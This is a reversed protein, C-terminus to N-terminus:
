RASWEPFTVEAKERYKGSGWFYKEWLGLGMERKEKLQLYHLLEKALFIEIYVLKENAQCTREENQYQFDPPVTLSGGQVYQYDVLNEGREM